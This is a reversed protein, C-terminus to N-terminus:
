TTEKAAKLDRIREALTSVHPDGSGDLEQACAEVAANWCDVVLKRGLPNDPWWERSDLFDKLTM